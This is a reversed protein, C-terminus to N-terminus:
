SAAPFVVEVHNGGIREAFYALPYNVTYVSLREAAAVQSALMLLTGLVFLQVLKMASEKEWVFLM